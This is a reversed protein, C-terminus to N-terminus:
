LAYVLRGGDVRVDIHGKQALRTLEGEAEDVTLSTELAARAPTIEGHREIVELLQREVSKEGDKSRWRGARRTGPPPPLPRTDSMGKLGQVTLWMSSSGACLSSVFALTAMLADLYPHGLFMLFLLPTGIAGVGGTVTALRSWNRRKRREIERAWFQDFRDPGSSSHEPEYGGTLRPHEHTGPMAFWRISDDRGYCPYPSSLGSM